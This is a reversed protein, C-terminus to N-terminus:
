EKVRPIRSGLSKVKETVATATSERVVTSVLGSGGLAGVAGGLLNGTGAGVMNGVMENLNETPTTDTVFGKGSTANVTADVAQNVGTGILAGTSAGFSTQAVTAIKGLKDAKALANAFHGVGGTALGLLAGKAGQELIKLGNFGKGAQHQEYAEIGAGIIAGIPAGWLFEGDPDTYKYPNNNVYLYRNFSMVPNKATYGVPDNGYFRGIVPDYYRAQM